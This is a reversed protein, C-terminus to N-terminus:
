FWLDRVCRGDGPLDEWKDLGDFHDIPIHAVHGPEALRLNVAIRRRGEANARQGRWFALNGCTRCFHFELSDGRMYATTSGVVRIGEGEYGHAWLAGYRRCATCNCATASEPIGDFQWTVTGCLCAGQISPDTQDSM